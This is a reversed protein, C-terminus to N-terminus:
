LPLLKARRRCKRRAKKTHKKKCKALAAARQGTQAAAPGPPSEPECILTFNETAESGSWNDVETWWGDPADGTQEPYTEAMPHSDVLFQRNNTSSVAGGGTARSGDPCSIVRGLVGNGGFAAPDSQITARSSASCVAYVEFARGATTDFNRVEAFWYRAVDGTTTNATLGTEDLPGSADVREYQTGLTTAVVGGSLARQGPPCAVAGEGYSPEAAPPLFIGEVQVTADSSASCIAYVKATIQGATNNRASALWRTPISDDQTGAITGALPGSGIVYNSGAISLGVGGGVAREGANCDDWGVLTSNAALPQSNVILRADDGASAASSAAGPGLAIAGLGALVAFSFARKM